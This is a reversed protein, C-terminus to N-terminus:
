PFPKSQNYELIVKKWYFLSSKKKNQCESRLRFTNNDRKKSHVISSILWLGVPDSWKLYKDFIFQLTIINCHRRAM